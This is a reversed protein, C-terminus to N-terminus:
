FVNEREMAAFLERVNSDDFGANDTRTVFELQIGTNHERRTFSQDLGPANIVGTLLDAERAGFDRLLELQGRVEIAIHQVGPGYHEIYQSVNSRPSDGQCLVFTVGGARLTASDMGSVEGSVQRREVVEFGYRDRFTAIAAALDRVAIAVHDIRKASNALRSRGGEEPGLIEQELYCAEATIADFLDGLFGADVGSREAFETARRRVAALRQENMMPTGTARKVEAVQRCLDLRRAVAALLEDDTEDIRRRLEQLEDHSTSTM